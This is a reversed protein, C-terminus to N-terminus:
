HRPPGVTASKDGSEARRRFEAERAQQLQHLKEVQAPTLFAEIETHTKRIMASVQEIANTRLAHLNKSLLEFAPQIQAMQQESLQLEQRLREAFDPAKHEPAPFRHQTWGRMAYGLGSGTIIGTLFVAVLYFIAKQKSLLNM